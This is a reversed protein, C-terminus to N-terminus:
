DADLDALTDRHRLNGGVDAVAALRQREVRVGVDQDVIGSM